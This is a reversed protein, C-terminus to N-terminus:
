MRNHLRANEYCLSAKHQLWKCLSSAMLPAQTPPPPLFPVQGMHLSTWSSAGTTHARDEQLCAPPCSSSTRRCHYRPVTISVHFKFWRFKWLHYSVQVVTDHVKVCCVCLSKCTCVHTSSCTIDLSGKLPIFRKWVHTSSCTIYLSGKLPIFRNEHVKIAEWTCM